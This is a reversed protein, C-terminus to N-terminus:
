LYGKMEQGSHNSIFQVKFFPNQNISKSLPFIQLLSVLGLFNSVDTRERAEFADDRNKFSENMGHMVGLSFENSLRNRVCLFIRSKLFRRMNKFPSVSFNRGLGKM